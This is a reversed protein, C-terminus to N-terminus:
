WLERWRLLRRKTFGPMNIDGGKKNRGDFFFRLQSNWTFKLKYVFAARVMCLESKTRQLLALLVDMLDCTSIHLSINM